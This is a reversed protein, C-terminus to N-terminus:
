RAARPDLDAHVRLRVLTSSAVPLSGGPGSGLALSQSPSEDWPVEADRAARVMMGSVALGAMQPVVVLGLGWGAVAGCGRGPNERSHSWGEPFIARHVNGCGHVSKQAPQWLWVKVPSRVSACSQQM